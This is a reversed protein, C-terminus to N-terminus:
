IKDEKRMEGGSFFVRDWGGEGQESVWESGSGQRPM